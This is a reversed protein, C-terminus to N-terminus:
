PQIGRGPFTFDTHLSTEMQCGFTRIYVRPTSKEDRSNGPPKQDDYTKQKTHM